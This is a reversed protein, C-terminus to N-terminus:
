RPIVSNSSVTKPFFFFDKRVSRYNICECRLHIAHFFTLVFKTTKAGKKKDSNRINIITRFGYSVHAVSSVNMIQQSAHSTIMEAM